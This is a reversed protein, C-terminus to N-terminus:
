WLWSLLDSQSPRELAEVVIEWKQGVPLSICLTLWQAKKQNVSSCFDGRQCQPYVSDPVGAM